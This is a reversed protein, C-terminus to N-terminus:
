RKVKCDDLKAAVAGKYSVTVTIKQIRSDREAADTVAIIASYGPYDYFQDTESNYVAPDPSYSFAYPRNKVYEMQSEALSRSTDIRDTFNAGKMANNMGYFLGSGIIGLIAISILLELLVFGKENRM